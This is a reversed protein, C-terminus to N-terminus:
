SHLIGDKVGKTMERLKGMKDDEWLVVKISWALYRLVTSSLSFRGMKKQWYIYNRMQYYKRFASHNMVKFERGFLTKYETEGIAHNLVAKKTQYIKWGASRLRECYEFDVYDIFLYEDFGKVEKWAKVCNLSGSTICEEICGETGFHRGTNRDVYSPAVVAIDKKDDVRLLLERVFDQPIVSDQDLTLLWEYGANDAYMMMTNLAAAIGKNIGDAVYTINGYEKFHDSSEDLHESNDILFIRDVQGSLSQINEKLLLYDPYYLVIGAAVAKGSDATIGGHVSRM